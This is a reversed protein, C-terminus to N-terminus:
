LEAPLNAVLNRYGVPLLCFIVIYLWAKSRLSVVCSLVLGVTSVVCACARFDSVGKKDLELAWASLREATLDPGKHVGGELVFIDGKKVAFINKVTCIDAGGRNGTCSLM